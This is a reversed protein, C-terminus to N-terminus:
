AAAGQHDKESWRGDQEIWKIVDAYRWMRCNGVKISRPFKGQKEWDLITTRGVSVLPPIPPTAKPDGIIDPIRVLRPEFRKSDIKSNAPPTPTM